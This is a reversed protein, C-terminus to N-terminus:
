GRMVLYGGAAAAICVVTNALVNAVALVTRQEQLLTDTQAAFTSFTTYSGCFGVGLSLEWSRGPGAGILIGLLLSGLVNVTLTGWPLRTGDAAGLRAQIVRDTWYRAPGGLVAGLVVVVPEM